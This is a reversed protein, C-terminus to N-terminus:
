AMVKTSSLARSPLPLRVTFTSGKGIQSSVRITGKHKSVVQLCVALGLGTGKIKTTYLPEFINKLVEDSIGEGTDRFIVEAFGEKRRTTVTLEGGEPMAEQANIALNTFVRLIQEGDVPVESLDPDFDKIIHIRGSAEISALANDIVQSLNTPTLSPTSIRTFTLLDTIIQNSHNVEDEIIQLFQAVRPNSKLDESNALKRNLYFIANKIAGLPNRLDHAVGGALQGLVALKETRVLQDQTDMLRENAAEVERTRQQVREELNRNAEEVVLMGRQNARYISGDAVVIFGLLVVFLAGLTGTTATLVASKADNVQLAVDASVDRDVEIVGIVPGTPSERLPLLTKLVQSHERLNAPHSDDDDHGIVLVSHMEGAAAATFMPDSQRTAGVIDLDSVLDPDLDPNHDSSWVVKGDLNLLNFDVIHMGEVMTPYITALADGAVLRDLILPIVPAPDPMAGDAHLNEAPAAQDNTQGEQGMTMAQESMMSQVHLMNQATTVQAIRTLHTEAMRGIILNVGFAAIAISIVMTVAFMFTLRYKQIGGHGQAIDSDVARERTLILQNGSGNQSLTSM